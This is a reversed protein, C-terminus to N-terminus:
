PQGPDLNGGPTMNSDLSWVVAPDMGIHSVQVAVLAKTVVPGLISSSAMDPDTTWICSPDTNIDMAGVWIGGLCGDLAKLQCEGVDVGDIVQQLAHLSWDQPVMAVPDGHSLIIKEGFAEPIEQWILYEAGVRSDLDSKSHKHFEGAFSAKRLWFKDVYEYLLCKSLAVTSTRTRYVLNAKFESM